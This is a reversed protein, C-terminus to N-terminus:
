TSGMTCINTLYVSPDLPTNGAGLRGELLWGPAEWSCILFSYQRSVFVFRMFNTGSPLWPLDSVLHIAAAATTSFPRLEGARCGVSRGGGPCARAAAAAADSPLCIAVLGSM